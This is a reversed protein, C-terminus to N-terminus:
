CSSKEVTLISVKGRTVTETGGCFELYNVIQIVIKNNKEQFPKVAEFEGVQHFKQFLQSLNALSTVQNMISSQFHGSKDM